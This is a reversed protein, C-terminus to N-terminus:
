LTVGKFVGLTVRDTLEDLDPDNVWVSEVDGQIVCDTLVDVLGVKDPM